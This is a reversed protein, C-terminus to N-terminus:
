NEEKQNYQIAYKLLESLSKLKLKHILHARHSDVTRISVFLKEAIAASTHGEGILKLIETERKTFTATPVNSETLYISEYKLLLSKLKEENLDNGFYKEGTYVRRIAYVLEGEMVNKNVLGMGGSILCSYVFEESDYMSLFLVKATEDDIRIKKVADLGSLIPMSIDVLIVDPKSEFYKRCLVEGNEAEDIVSIDSYDSLMRIIGSRFLKHDDAILVKILNNYTM